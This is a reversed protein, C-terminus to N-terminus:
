NSIIMRLTKSVQGDAILVYFYMGQNLEGGSITISGDGKQTLSKSLKQDGNMDYIILRAQQISEPLFYNIVTSQNSPNPINQFLKIGNSSVGKTSQADLSVGSAEEIAAILESQEEVKQNLEKIANILVPILDSYRIGMPANPDPKITKGEADKEIVTAPDYVVEPIIEKVEQAILGVTIGEEPRAKWKFSVPKLKKLHELGYNLQKINDKERKDSTQIVGNSAFITNWRLSPQGLSFANDLRPRITGNFTASLVDIASSFTADSSISVPSTIAVSEGSIQNRPLIIISPTFNTGSTTGLRLQVNAGNSSILAHRFIGFSNVKVTGLYLLETNLDPDNVSVAYNDNSGSVTNTKRFSTLPSTLSGTNGEVAFKVSPSSTGIGINGNDLFTMRPLFNNAGDINGIRLDSNGFGSGNSSNWAIVADKVQSDPNTTSRAQLQFNIAYQGWQHKLGYLGPLNPIGPNGGIATWLDGQNTGGFTVGTSQRQGINGGTVLFQLGTPFDASGISVRGTRDINGIPDNAGNFFQGYVVGFSNVILMIVVILRIFLSNKKM